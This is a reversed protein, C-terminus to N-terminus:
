LTALVLLVTLNVEIVMDIHDTSFTGAMQSIITLTGTPLFVTLINGLLPRDLVVEVIIGPRDKIMLSCMKVDKVFRQPFEKPGSFTLNAPTFAISQEDMYFQMTCMQTDFPYWSMSFDCMWDVTWQRTYFLKNESGKFLFTNHKKTFDGDDVNEFRETSLITIKDEKDTKTYKENNEINEFISWPKWITELDEPSIVNEDYTEKLNQYTLQSDFWYRIIDFKTRFFGEVEDIKIIKEINISMNFVLKGSDLAPPVLYKNYGISPIVSRCDQEDSGDPCHTKGDCREAM